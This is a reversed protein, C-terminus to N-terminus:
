SESSDSGQATPRRGLARAILQARGTGKAGRQDELARTSSSTAAQADAANDRQGAPISAGSEPRHCGETAWARERGGSGMGGGIGMGCDEWPGAPKELRASESAALGATRAEAPREIVVRGFTQRGEVLRAAAGWSRQRLEAGVFREPISARREGEGGGGVGAGRARDVTTDPWGDSGYLEWPWRADEPDKAMSAWARYPWSGATHHSSRDMRAGEAEVPADGAQQACLSARRASAPLGGLASWCPAGGRAEESVDEPAPSRGRGFDGGGAGAGGTSRAGTQGM